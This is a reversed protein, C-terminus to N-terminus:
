IKKLPRLPPPTPPKNLHTPPTWKPKRLLPESPSKTAEDEDFDVVEVEGLMTAVAAEADQLSPRVKADPSLLRVILSALPPPAGPVYQTNPQPMQGTLMRFTMMGLGFLDLTGTTAGNPELLLDGWEGSVLRAPEDARVAALVDRVLTAIEDARLLRRM